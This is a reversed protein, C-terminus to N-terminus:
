EFGEIVARSTCRCNILQGPWIHAGEDSDYMGEELKYRKGNMAVHTPRPEKGASSHQWIAEKIGLEKRRENEFTAKAKANQDRAILACRRHAVGYKASMGESLTKLDSGAMVNQWVSSQVETLFKQPISKILAVNEAVTARFASQMRRTPKFKVTLGADKFSSKVATDTAEQNKAAFNWAIRVSLNELRKTWIGGWKDMAAQLKNFRLPADQALRYYEPQWEGAGPLVQGNADYDTDDYVRQGPIHIIAMSDAAFGHAPRGDKYYAERVSNFLEQAMERLMLQLAKRYAAEVGANPQVARATKTKM